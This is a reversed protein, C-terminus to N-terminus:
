TYKILVCHKYIKINSQIGNGERTDVQGLEGDDVSSSLHVSSECADVARKVTVRDVEHYLVYITRQNNM